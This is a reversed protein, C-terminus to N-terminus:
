FIFDNEYKQICIYIYVKIVLENSFLILTAANIIGNEWLFIKDNNMVVTNYVLFESHHKQYQQKFLTSSPHINMNLMNPPRIFTDNNKNYAAVKPYMGATIAANIMATSDGYQNYVSPIQCLRNYRNLDYRELKQKDDESIMVFGISILLELYQKKMEEIM